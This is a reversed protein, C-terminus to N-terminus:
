RGFKPHGNTLDAISLVVTLVVSGVGSRLGDEPLLTIQPGPHHPLKTGKAM